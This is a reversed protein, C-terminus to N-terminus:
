AAAGRRRPGGRIRTVEDLLSRGNGAPAGSGARLASDPCSGPQPPLGGAALGPATRLARRRPHPAGPRVLSPPKALVRARINDFGGEIPPSFKLEQVYASPLQGELSRISLFFGVEARSRLSALMPIIREIQPYSPNSFVQLSGGMLKEESLVFTTPGARLPDLHRAMIEAVARGRLGPLRTVLRREFLAKALGSQRVRYNDVFDIGREALEPRM